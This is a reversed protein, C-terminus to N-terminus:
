KEKKQQPRRPRPARPQTQELRRSLKADAAALEDYKQHLGQVGEEVRGIADKVSSGNNYKVEHRIDEVAEDTRTIFAPLQGLADVLATVRKLWPWFKVLLRGLIYLAVIVVAVQWLNIQALFTWDVVTM